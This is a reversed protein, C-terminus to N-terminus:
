LTMAVTAGPAKGSENRSVIASPIATAVPAPLTFTYNSAAATMVTKTSSPWTSSSRARSAVEPAMLASSSRAGFVARRMRGPPSSSSTGSSSMTIPSTSRTRGPSFTGTSAATSSPREATSSDKTVPSDMGTVLDAPSVTMPPVKFWVPDSVMRASFTPRSVMSARMTAMTASACRERAGMWRVTSRTEATNTGATIPAATSAKATQASTPGSGFSACARTTAPETSMMAQGHASPSAVGMDMMTPAPRPARSPARMLFASASSTISFASVTTTSLVPVRVSPRGETV